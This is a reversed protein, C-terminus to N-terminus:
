AKENLLNLGSLTDTVKQQPQGQLVDIAGVKVGNNELQQRFYDLHRSIKEVTAAQESWFRTSVINDYCQLKCNIIGLGPPSLTITVSWSNNTKTEPSAKHQEFRVTVQDTQNQNLFPFELTWTQKNSDDKPLSALQDLVIKALSGHSQQLVEHLLKLSSTKLDQEVEPGIQRLQNILHLLKLKFDGKLDIDPNNALQILKTELFRGSNDVFRKLTDADNLQSRQPLSQLIERALKQLIQPVDADKGLEALSNILATASQQIPLNLRVAETITQEDVVSLHNSVLKFKPQDGPQVTELTLWNGRNLTLTASERSQIASTALNVIRALPLTTQIPTKADSVDPNDVYFSGTLQNANIALVKVALQQGTVLQKFLQPVPLSAQSSTLQKLIITNELQSTTTPVSQETAKLVQFEVLPQLKVVQLTLDQGTKIATPQSSQVQILKNAIQLALTQQESHVDIVKVDLQQNLRLTFADLKSLTAPSPPPPSPIKIDM